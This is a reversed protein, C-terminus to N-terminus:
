NLVPPLSHVTALSSLCVELLRGTAMSWVFIEFTDHSAACVVEGSPDLTLCSFQVPRPSAFTRFNRYRHPSIPPWLLFPLSLSLSLSLSLVFVYCDNKLRLSTHFKLRQLLGCVHIHLHVHIHKWIHVYLVRLLGCM